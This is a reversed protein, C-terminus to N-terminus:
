GTSFGACTKPSSDCLWPSLSAAGFEVEQRAVWDWGHGVVAEGAEERGEGVRGLYRCQNLEALM